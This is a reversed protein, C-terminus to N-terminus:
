NSVGWTPFQLIWQFLVYLRRMGWFEIRTDLFDNSITSSMQHRQIEVWIAHDNGVAGHSCTYPTM